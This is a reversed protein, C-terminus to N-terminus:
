IVVIENFYKLCLRLEKASKLIMKEIENKPNFRIFYENNLAVEAKNIKSFLMANLTNLHLTKSNDDYSPLNGNQLLYLIVQFYNEINEYSISIMRDKDKFCIDYFVNGINREESFKFDFETFLFDFYEKVITIYQNPEIM